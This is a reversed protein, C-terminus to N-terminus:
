HCCHAASVFRDSLINRILPEARLAINVYASPDCSSKRLLQQKQADDTSQELLLDHQTALLQRTAEQAAQLTSELAERSM